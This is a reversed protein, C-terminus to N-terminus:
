KDNGDAQLTQPAGDWVYVNGNRVVIDTPRIDKPLELAQVPSGAKNANFKLVRGNVQDLLYLSGDDAAYIAQPGDIPADERADIMGVSDRSTGNSFRKIVTDEARAYSCSAAIGILAVAAICPTLRLAATRGRRSAPPKSRNPSILRLAPEEAPGRCVFGPM